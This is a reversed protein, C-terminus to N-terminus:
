AVEKFRRGSGRDSVTGGACEVEREGADFGDTEWVWGREDSERCNGAAKSSVGDLAEPKASSYKIHM